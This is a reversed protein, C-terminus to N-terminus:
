PHMPCPHMDDLLTASHKDRGDHVQRVFSGREVCLVPVAINGRRASVLVFASVTEASEPRKEM